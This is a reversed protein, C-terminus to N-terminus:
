SFTQGKRTSHYQYILNFKPGFALIFKIEEPIQTLVNLVEVAKENHTIKLLSLCLYFDNKEMYTPSWKNEDETTHAQIIDRCKTINNNDTRHNAMKTDIGCQIYRPTPSTTPTENTVTNSYEYTSDSTDGSTQTPTGNSLLIDQNMIENVNLGKPEVITNFNM